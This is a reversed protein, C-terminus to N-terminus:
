GYKEMLANYLRVQFTKIPKHKVGLHTYLMKLHQTICRLCLDYVGKDWWRILGFLVSHRQDIRRNINVVRFTKM